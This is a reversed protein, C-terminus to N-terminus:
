VLTGTITVSPNFFGAGFIFQMANGFVGLPETDSQNDAPTVFGKFNIKKTKVPVASSGSDVIVSDSDVNVYASYTSVDSLDWNM